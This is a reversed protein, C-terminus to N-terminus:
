RDSFSVSRQHALICPSAFLLAIIEKRGTIWGVAEVQVPHLGFVLTAILASNASLNWNLLVRYVLVLGLTWLLISTLHLTPRTSRGM